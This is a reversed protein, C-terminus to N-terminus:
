AEGDAPPAEKKRKKYKKPRGRRPGADELDRQEHIESVVQKLAKELSDFAWREAFAAYEQDTMRRAFTERVAHHKKCIQGDDDIVRCDEIYDGLARLLDDSGPVSLILSLALLRSPDCGKLYSTAENSLPIGGSETMQAPTEYESLGLLYDTSVGYYRAFNILMELKPARVDREYSALVSPDCAIEPIVAAERQTFGARMRLGQLRKGLGEIM